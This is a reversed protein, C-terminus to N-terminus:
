RAQLTTGWIAEVYPSLEAYHVHAVPSQQVDGPAERFEALQQSMDDVRRRSLSRHLDEVRCIVWEVPKAQSTWAKRHKACKDKATVHKVRPAGGRALSRHNPTDTALM